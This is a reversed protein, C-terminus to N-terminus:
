AKMTESKNSQHEINKLLTKVVFLVKTINVHIFLLKSNYCVPQLWALKLLHMHKSHDGGRPFDEEERPLPQTPLMQYGITHYLTWYTVCTSCLSSYTVMPLRGSQTLTFWFDPHKPLWNVFVLPQRLIRNRRISNQLSYLDSPTM